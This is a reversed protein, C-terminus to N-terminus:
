ICEDWPREFGLIKERTSIGKVFPEWFTLFGNLEM